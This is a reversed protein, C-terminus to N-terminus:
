RVMLSEFVEDLELSPMVPRLSELKELLENFSNVYSSFLLRLLGIRANGKKAVEAYLIANKLGQIFIFEGGYEGIISEVFSKKLIWLVRKATDYLSFAMACLSKDLSHNFKDYSSIVYGNSLSIFTRNIEPISNIITLLSNNIEDTLAEDLIFNNYKPLALSHEGQYKLSFNRLIEEIEEPTFHILPPKLVQFNSTLLNQIASLSNKAEVYIAGINTKKQATLTIFYEDLLPLPSLFIKAAAGEILINNLRTSSIQKATSYIASAASSVSFVERKSLWVGASTIPYGDKQTLVVNEVGPINKINQLHLKLLDNDYM